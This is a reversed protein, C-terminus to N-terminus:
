DNHCTCNCEESSSVEWCDVSVQLSNTTDLVLTCLDSPFSGSLENDHLFLADLNPLSGLEAPITGRLQNHQLRLKDLEKLNGFETPITGDLQNTSFGLESLQTLLELDTPLYGTLKNHELYLLRMKTLKTLELPIIGRLHNNSLDLSTLRTLAVLETPVTGSIGGGQVGGSLYLNTLRVLAGIERPIPGTLMNGSVNLAELATLNGLEAPLSGDLRNDSLFISKLRTLKGLAPPVPGTLSTGYLSFRTLRSLQGLETPVTGTLGSGRISLKTLVTLQGLEPPLQGEFGYASLNSLSQLLGIEHPLPGIKVNASLSSMIGDGGCAVGFWSCETLNVALWSSNSNWNDEGGTAFFMAALAFRHTARKLVRAESWERGSVLDQETAWQFAKSQYSDPEALGEITHNPLVTLLMQALVTTPTQTPFVTPHDTPTAAVVEPPVPKSLLGVSLGVVLAFIAVAVILLGAKQRGRRVLDEQEGDVLNAEALFTPDDGRPAPRSPAVVAGPTTADRDASVHNWQAIGAIPYAGPGRGNQGLAVTSLSPGPAPSSYAPRQDTEHIAPNSGGPREQHHTATEIAGRCDGLQDERDGTTALIVEVPHRPHPAATTREKGSRPNILSPQREVADDVGTARRDAVVGRPSPTLM